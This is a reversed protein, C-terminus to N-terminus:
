RKPMEFGLLAKNLFDNFPQMIRFKEAAFSIFTEQNEFTEDDIVYEIDWAKHKLYEALPHEKSYGKPVTKLKVGEITFNEKFLPANIIEIFEEPNQCIYNRVMQTAEPFVSAFLGGGLFCNGPKISLYSGAPIPSRKAISIHARFAPNYPSKDKSFRTDRNLRFILEKPDLQTVTSDFLSISQILQSLLEEFNAKATQYYEKNEHMWDISNNAQLDKLFRLIMKNDM